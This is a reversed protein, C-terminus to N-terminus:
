ATEGFKPIDRLRIGRPRINHPNDKREPNEPKSKLEIKNVINHAVTIPIETERAAASQTMGERYFYHLVMQELDERHVYIGTAKPYRGSKKM